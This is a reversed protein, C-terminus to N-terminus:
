EYVATNAEDLVRRVDKRIQEVIEAAGMRERVLGVGTGSYTAMRGEAEGWGKVGKKAAEAHREQLLEFSVGAEHDRWSANALGRADYEAPWDMTGRLHNYLQTRVTSQGGDTADLVHQVYGPNINAENAALFRTGMASAAAGLVTGAVVGRADIIGGAAVLPIQPLNSDKKLEDAIEPLLTMLGAGKTRSHGGADAGQVVLVDPREKSAAAAKAEAVSAIQIWIKTKSDTAARIGVSWEDLEKQGHRPAFLWAAAPPPHARMIRATTELDGAWTQFGVGIPLIVYRDLHALTPSSQPLSELLSPTQSLSDDLDAPKAGPGIFGLGGAGSIAVALKPGSIVRMPAGVIFPPSIWPYTRQLERAALRGINSAM